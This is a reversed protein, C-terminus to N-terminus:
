YHTVPCTHYNGFKWAVSSTRTSGPPPGWSRWPSPGCTWPAPTAGTSGLGSATAASCMSAGSYINNLSSRQMPPFIILSVLIDVWEPDPLWRPDELVAKCIPCILEEDVEGVFRTKEYGMRWSDRRSFIKREVQAVAAGSEATAVGSRKTKKKSASM